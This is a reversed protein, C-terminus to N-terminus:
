CKKSKIEDEILQQVNPEDDINLDFMFITIICFILIFSIVILNFIM